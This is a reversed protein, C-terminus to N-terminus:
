EEYGKLNQSQFNWMDKCMAHLDKAASWGLVKKALMPNAYSSAIDGERRPCLTYPIEKGSAKSFADIVDLVSYGKGTGLNIARCQPEKLANLAKLHGIALDVVHM